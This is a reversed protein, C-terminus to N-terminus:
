RSERTAGGIDTRQPYFPAVLLALAAILAMGAFASQGFAEYAPGSLLTAGAMLGTQFLFGLGQAAGLREEPVHAAITAQLALWSAGFTFGHLAQLAVFGGVGADGTMLSWRLVGAAAGAVLLGRPGFRAILGSGFRFLVIEVVVGTGWFIGITLPAYGLGTWLIAGFGYLMAHSAQVLALAAMAPVLRGIDAGPVLRRRLKPLKPLGAPEGPGADALASARRPRGLRPTFCSFAAAIVFAALLLAPISGAGFTGILLGGSVNAAIFAISGWLRARGYDAGLRRQGALAVADTIPILPAWVLALLVTSVLIAALGSSVFLLNVVLAAGFASGMLVFARERSADALKLVLPVSLARLAIQLGLVLSIADADLGQHALWVPFFPNFLGLTIFDAAFVLKMRREFARAEGTGDTM